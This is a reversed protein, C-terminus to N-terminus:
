TQYTTILKRENWIKQYIYKIWDYRAEKTNERKGSYEIVEWRKILKLVWKFKITFNIDGEFRQVIRESSHQSLSIVM